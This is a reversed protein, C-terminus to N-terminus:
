IVERCDLDPLTGLLALHKISSLVDWRSGDNCGVTALDDGLSSSCGPLRRKAKATM